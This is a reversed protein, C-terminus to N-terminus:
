LVKLVLTVAGAGLDVIGDAADVAVVVAVSAVSVADADSDVALSLAGATGRCHGIQNRHFYDM